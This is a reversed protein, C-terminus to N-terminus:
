TPFIYKGKNDRRMRRELEQAEAKTACTHTRYDIYQRHKAVYERKRDNRRTGVGGHSEPLLSMMRYALNGSEGVLVLEGTERNRLEYVGPGVYVYLYGEELFDPFQRWDSWRAM